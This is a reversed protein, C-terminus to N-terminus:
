PTDGGIADLLDDEQDGASIGFCPESMDQITLGETKCHVCRFVGEEGKPSTRVLYHTNM